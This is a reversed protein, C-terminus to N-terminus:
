SKTYTTSFDTYTNNYFIDLMNSNDPSKTHKSPSTLNKLAKPYLFSEKILSANGSWTQPHSIFRTKIIGFIVDALKPLGIWLM